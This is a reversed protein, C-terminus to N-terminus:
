VEDEYIEERNWKWGGSNPKLEEVLKFLLFEGKEPTPRVARQVIERIFKNLSVGQSAAAKKAETLLREDLSITLNKM